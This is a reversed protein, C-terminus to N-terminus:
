GDDNKGWVYVSGDRELAISHHEGGVIEAIDKGRFTEIETQFICSEEETDIGLQGHNNLGWGYYM